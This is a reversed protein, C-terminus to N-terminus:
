AHPAEIEVIRTPHVHGAHLKCAYSVATDLEYARGSNIGIVAPTLCFVEIGMGAYMVSSCRKKHPTIKHNRM